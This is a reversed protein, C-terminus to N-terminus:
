DSCELKNANTIMAVEGERCGFQLCMNGEKDIKIDDNEDDGKKSTMQEITKIVRCCDFGCFLNMFSKRGMKLVWQEFATYENPQTHVVYTGSEQKDRFMLGHGTVWIFARTFIKKLKNQYWFDTFEQMRKALEEKSENLSVITHFRSSNNNPDSRFNSGQFEHLVLKYDNECYPWLPKLNLKVFHDGHYKWNSVIM